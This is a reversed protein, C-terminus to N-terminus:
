ALLGLGLPLLHGARLAPPVSGLPVLLAPLLLLQPVPMVDAEGAVPLQGRPLLSFSLAGPAPEAGATLTAYGEPFVLFPLQPARLTV